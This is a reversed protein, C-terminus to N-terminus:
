IHSSIRTRLRANIEEALYKDAQKYNKSCVAFIFKSLYSEANLPFRREKASRVLEKSHPEWHGPTTMRGGIQTTLADVDEPHKVMDDPNIENAMLYRGLLGKYKDLEEQNGIKSAHDIRNVYYVYKPDHGSQSGPTSMYGSRPFRREEAGRAPSYDDSEKMMKKKSFNKKGRQPAKMKKLNKIKKVMNEEDDSAAAGGAATRGVCGEKLRQKIM